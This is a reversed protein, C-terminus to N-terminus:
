NEMSGFSIKVIKGDFYKLLKENSIALVTTCKHKALLEEKLMDVLKKAEVLPIDEFVDDIILLDVKRLSARLIAVKIRDSKNLEKLKMSKIHQLNNALLVADVDSKIKDYMYKRIKLVYELNQQVSKNEFFTGQASIYAMNVDTKYNLKNINIGKIYVDGKTAKEIGAIVRILSSKGSEKQGFLIVTEGAEVSLNINNLTAYEKVYNLYVNKVEIM